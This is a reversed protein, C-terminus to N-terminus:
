PKGQERSVAVTKTPLVSLFFPVSIVANHFAEKEEPFKRRAPADSM